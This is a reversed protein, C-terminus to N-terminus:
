AIITTSDGFTRESIFLLLGASFISCPIDMSFNILSSPKLRIVFVKEIRHVNEPIFACVTDEKEKGLIENGLEAM